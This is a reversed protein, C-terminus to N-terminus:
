DRETLMSIVQGASSDARNIESLRRLEEVVGIDVTVSGLVADGPRSSGHCDSGGTALLGNKKALKLYHRRQPSSHDTHSCELGQLGERVLEPIVEDHKANGPHALVGVGGASRIVGLAEAPTLKFRPVFGPTGRILYRGFAANMDSSIGAEVLARAVHPRGVSGGGAIELVCQFTIGIGIGNLKQVIERGREMRKRRLHKLCDALTESHINVLYGLIHLECSGCDTNIEVGPVVVVGHERGARMAEEVGAITDHDSIGVAGLGIEAAM